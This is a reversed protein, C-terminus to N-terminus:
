VVPRLARRPPPPHSALGPRRSRPLLLPQSCPTCSVAAPARTHAATKSRTLSHSVHPPEIQRRHPPLGHQRGEHGCAGVVRAARHSAGEEHDATDRWSSSADTRNAKCLKERQCPCRPETFVSEPFTSLTLLPPAYCGFLARASPPHPLPTKFTLSTENVLNRADRKKYRARAHVIRRTRRKDHTYNQLTDLTHTRSPRQVADTPERLRTINTPQAHHVHHTAADV